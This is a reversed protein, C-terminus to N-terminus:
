SKKSIYQEVLFSFVKRGAVEWNLRRSYCEFSSLALKNYEQKSSLLSEIYECYIEPNEDLPFLKGNEGESIVTPVEELKVTALSPLGFSSAEAFVLGYSEVRSPM